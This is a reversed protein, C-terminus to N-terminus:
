EVGALVTHEVGLETTCDKHAACGHAATDGEMSLGHRLKLIQVANRYVVDPQILGFDVLNVLHLFLNRCLNLRVIEPGHEEVFTSCAKTLQCDGIYSFSM